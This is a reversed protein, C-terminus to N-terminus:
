GQGDKAMGLAKAMMQGAAEAGDHPALVELYAHLKGGYAHATIGRGTDKDYYAVLWADRVPKGNIRETRVVPLAPEFEAAFREAITRNISM